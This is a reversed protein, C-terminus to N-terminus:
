SREGTGWSTVPEPRQGTDNGAALRDAAALLQLVEAVIDAVTLLRPQDLLNRGSLQYLEHGERLAREDGESTGDSLM